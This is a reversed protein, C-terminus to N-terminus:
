DNNVIEPKRAQEYINIRGESALLIQHYVQECFTGPVQTIEMLQRNTLIDYELQLDEVQITIKYTKTAEVEQAVAIVDLPEFVDVLSQQLACLYANFFPKDGKRSPNSYNFLEYEKM